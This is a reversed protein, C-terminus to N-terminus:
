SSSGIPFHFIPLIPLFYTIHISPTHIYINYGLEKKAIASSYLYLVLSREIKYM